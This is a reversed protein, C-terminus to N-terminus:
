TTAPARAASSATRARVFQRYARAVNAKISLHVVHFIAHYISQMSPRSMRRAPGLPATRHLAAEIPAEIPWTSIAFAACRECGVADLCSPRTNPQIKLERSLPPATGMLAAAANALASPVRGQAQSPGRGPSWGNSSRAAGCIGKTASSLSAHFSGVSHHDATSHRHAL